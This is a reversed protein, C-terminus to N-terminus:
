HELEADVTVCNSRIAHDCSDNLHPVHMTDGFGAAAGSSYM